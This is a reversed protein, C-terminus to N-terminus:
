QPDAGQETLYKQGGMIRAYKGEVTDPPPLKPAQPAAPQIAPMNIAENLLEGLAEATEGDDDDGQFVDLVGSVVLVGQAGAEPAFARLAERDAPSLDEAQDVVLAYRADIREGDVRSPLYLVQLRAM